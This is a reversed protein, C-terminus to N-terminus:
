EDVYQFIERSFQEDTFVAFEADNVSIPFDGANQTPITIDNVLAPGSEPFAVQRPDLQAHFNMKEFLDTNRGATRSKVSVLRAVDEVLGFTRESFMLPNDSTSLLGCSAQLPAIDWDRLERTDFRPSLLINGEGQYLAACDPANFKYFEEPTAAYKEALLMAQYHTDILYICKCWQEFVDNDRTLLISPEGYVISHFLASVVIGEDVPVLVSPKHRDRLVKSAIRWGRAGAFKQCIPQLETEIVPDRGHKEKFLEFQHVAFYKRLWLLRVYYDAVPRIDQSFDDITAISVVEHGTGSEEAEFAAKLYDSFWQNCRPSNLWPQLESRVGKTIFVRKQLISDWLGRPVEHSTMFGTDLFIRYNRPMTRFPEILNEYTCKRSPHIDGWMHPFIHEKHPPPIPIKKGFEYINDPKKERFHHNTPNYKM